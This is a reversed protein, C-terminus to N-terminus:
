QILKCQDYKGFWAYRNKAIMNYFVRQLKKPFISILFKLLKFPISMKELILAVAYEHTILQKNDLELIVTNQLQEPINFSAFQIPIINFTGKKSHNKVLKIFGTCLKCVGDYYITM